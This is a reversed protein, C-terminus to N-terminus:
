PCGLTGNLGHMLKRQRLCWTPKLLSLSWVCVTPKSYIRWIWKNYVEFGPLLFSPFILIHFLPFTTVATKKKREKKQVTKQHLSLSSFFFGKICDYYNCKMFRFQRWCKVKVCVRSDRSNKKRKQIKKKKIWNVLSIQSVFSISIESPPSPPIFHFPPTPFLPSSRQDLKM